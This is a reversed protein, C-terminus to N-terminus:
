PLRPSDAWASAGVPRCIMRISRQLRSTRFMSLRMRSGIPTPMREGKAWIVYKWKTQDRDDRWAQFDAETRKARFVRWAAEFDARAQDLTAATGTICEGPHSGPYFGCSWGWLVQDPPIGIRKSITGVRVDGYFIQWCEESADPSRRRSLTPM